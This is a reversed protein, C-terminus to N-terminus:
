RALATTATARSNSAAPGWDVVAANVVTNCASDDIQFPALTGTEFDGNVVQASAAGACAAWLVLSTAACPILRM